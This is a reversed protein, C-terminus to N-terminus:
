CRPGISVFENYSVIYLSRTAGQLNAPRSSNVDYYVFWLWLEVSVVFM